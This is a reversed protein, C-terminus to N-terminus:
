NVTHSHRQKLGPLRDSVMRFLISIERIKFLYGAVLLLPIFFVALLGCIVIADLRTDTNFWSLALWNRFFLAPICLIGTILTMKVYLRRVAAGGNHNGTRRNWILFLGIVQVLASLSIVLTLGQIGSMRIGLVYFPLSVLVCSSTYLAPLLTNQLAYFGRVVVTQTAFGVAGILLFFLATETVAVAANDFAGHRFLIVVVEHKLIMMLGAMPIIVSLNSLAQNWIRNLEGLNGQAALKSLFPYTAVGVAQGFFAVLAMMIRMSYNIGAVSGEPLTSGFFKFLIETSFLMTLGLALPLTQVLYTRIDPHGPSFSLRFRFGMKRTGIWQLLFNGICAGALAGWSFGYIGYRNGLLIGGFIIGLNYILPALAPFVFRENAFQVAMLLGGAFFFLQAPLIIRTMHVAHDMVPTGAYGPALLPVLHPAFCWCILTFVTLIGGFFTLIVSFSESAGDTDNRALYASLIPIFTISLFGTALMHNLIEPLEFAIQYADVQKGAGQLNAIVGERVIGIIRSFFVSAMMILSAIGTKKTISSM